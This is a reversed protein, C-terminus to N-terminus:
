PRAVAEVWYGNGGRHMAMDVAIANGDLNVSGHFKADGFTFVGGDTALLWYGNGSPTRAMAVIPANLRKGGLSGRFKADGFCFIGGDSAVLWYGNGSPTLALGVIPKNLKLGGTSGRFHADGFCFIGGDSAVLYYGNGSPTVAMGVIPENLHHGGTSGRFRAAGFSFMGGDTAVLFYGNGKPVAGVDTIPLNLHHGGMSGYYTADGLAYVSGDAAALWYGNGSPTADMGVLPSHLLGGPAGKAPADGFAYVAARSGPPPPPPHLCPADHLATASSVAVTPVCTPDFEWPPACSVVRCVVAGVCRIEQHCQGYRFQNCCVVRDDCPAGACHCGCNNCSSSCVGSSGCGCGGCSANCDIYYRSGGGCFGSNDVKWWGGPIAGPPCTNNGGNISCCMASWGSGCDSAPGCGLAAYASGPRLLWRFPNVVLVSGVVATRVLLSRRGIKRGLWSSTREVVRESFTV